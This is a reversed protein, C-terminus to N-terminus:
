AIRAQDNNNELNKRFGDPETDEVVAHGKQEFVITRSEQINRGVRATNRQDISQYYEFLLEEQEPVFEEELEWRDM